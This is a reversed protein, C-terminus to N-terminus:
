YVFCPISHSHSVSTQLLSSDKTIPWWQPDGAFAERRQKRLAKETRRRRRRAVEYYRYFIKELLRRNYHQGAMNEMAERRLDDVKDASDALRESESGLQSPVASFATSATHPAPVETIPVSPATVHSDKEFPQITQVAAVSPSNGATVGIGLAGSVQGVADFVSRGGLESSKPSAVAASLYSTWSPGAPPQTDQNENDDDDDLIEEATGLFLPTNNTTPDTERTETPMSIWESADTAETLQSSISGGFEPSSEQKSPRSAQEFIPEPSTEESALDNGLKIAHHSSREPAFPNPIGRTVFASAAPASAFPSPKDCKVADATASPNNFNTYYEVFAPDKLASAFPSPKDGKVNEHSATTGSLNDQLSGTFNTYDQVFAPDKLASAFPSPRDDGVGDHFAATEPPNDQLSGAFNTYHQPFAPARPAPSPVDIKVIAVTKALNGGLGDAFNTYQEGASEFHNMATLVPQVPVVQNDVLPANQANWLIDAAPQEGRKRDILSPHM